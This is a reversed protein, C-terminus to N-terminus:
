GAPHCAFDSIRREADLGIRCLSLRDGSRVEYVDQVLEPQTKQWRIHIQGLYTLDHSATQADVWEFARKVRKVASAEYRGETIVRQRLDDLVGLMAAATDGNQIKAGISASRDFKHLTAPVDGTVSMSVLGGSFAGEITDKGDWNGDFILNAPGSWWRFVVEAGDLSGSAMAADGTSCTATLRRDRRRILCIDRIYTEASYFIHIGSFLGGKFEVIKPATVTWYGSLLNGSVVVEAPAGDDSPMQQPADSDARAGGSALLVGVAIFARCSRILNSRCLQSVSGAGPRENRLPPSGEAAM